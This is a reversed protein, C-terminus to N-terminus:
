APPALPADAVAMLSEQTTSAVLLGRADHVRAIALGRGQAASPSHADVHLWEDARFPRHFWICHNLSSIYLRQHPQLSDVHLGLSSYNLWWDSLYAFAAAQLFPDTPLVDRAKLWFRLQPGAHAPSVQREVDPVRFDICPKPTLSYGSLRRLRMAWEAPMEHLSPEDEPPVPGATWPLAHAPADIPVAFSVQADLVQRGDAQTGHVRRTSFRKGEQLTDVHLDIPRDPQAGQLFVFQMMTPLRDAAVDMSAARMAQGLTQGGYSRGNLNADGFRTRYHGPAVTDLTLLGVLDRENWRQLVPEAM